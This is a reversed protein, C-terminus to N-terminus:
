IVSHYLVGDVGSRDVVPSSDWRSSPFSRRSKSSSGKEERREEAIRERERLEKSDVGPGLKAPVIAVVLATLILAAVVVRDGAEPLQPANAM